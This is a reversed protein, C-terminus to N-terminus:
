IKIYKVSFEEENEGTNIHIYFGNENFGTYKSILTFIKLMTM